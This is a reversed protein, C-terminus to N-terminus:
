RGEYTPVLHTAPYFNTKEADLAFELRFVVQSSSDPARLLVVGRDDCLGVNVEDVVLNLQKPDFESQQKLWTKASAEFERRSVSPKVLHPSEYHRWTKYDRKAMAQVYGKARGKLAEGLADSAAKTLEELEATSDLKESANCLTQVAEIPKRNKLESRIQAILQIQWVEKASDALAVARRRLDGDGNERAFALLDTHLRLAEAFALVEQATKTSLKRGSLRREEEALVREIQGLLESKDMPAELKSLRVILALAVLGSTKKLERLEDEFLEEAARTKLKSLQDLYPDQGPPFVGWLSDAAMLEVIQELSESPQKTIALSLRAVLVKLAAELARKDSPVKLASLVVIRKTLQPLEPEDALAEADREFIRTKAALGLPELETKQLPYTKNRLSNCRELAADPQTEVSYGLWTIEKEYFSTQMAETLMLQADANLEVGLKKQENTLEILAEWEKNALLVELKDALAEAYGAVVEDNIASTEDPTGLTAYWLSAWLGHQYTITDFRVWCGGEIAVWRGDPWDRTRCDEDACDLNQGREFEDCLASSSTPEEHSTSSSGAEFDGTFHEIYNAILGIIVFLVIAGLITQCGCGSFGVQRSGCNPCKRSLDAGRPYWTQGCAGCENQMRKTARAM